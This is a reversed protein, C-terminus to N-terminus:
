KTESKAAEPEPAPFKYKKGDSTVLQLEHGEEGKVVERKVIHHPPLEMAAKYNKIEPVQLLRNAERLAYQAQAMASDPIDAQAKKLAVAYSKKWEAKLAAPLHKPANPITTEEAM